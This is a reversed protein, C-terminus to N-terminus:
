GIDAIKGMIVNLYDKVDRNKKKLCISGRSINAPRYSTESSKKTVLDVKVSLLQSLHNELRIFKVFGMPRQVEVLVDLDSKSDQDGRVYSGFLGISIM